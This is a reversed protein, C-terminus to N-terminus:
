GEVIRWKWNEVKLKCVSPDGHKKIDQNYSLNCTFTKINNVNKFKPNFCFHTITKITITIGTIYLSTNGVNIDLRTDKSIIM